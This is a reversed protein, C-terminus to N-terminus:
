SNYSQHFYKKVKDKLNNLSLGSRSENNEPEKTKPKFYLLTPNDKKISGCVEEIFKDDNYEGKLTEKLFGSLQSKDFGCTILHFGNLTPIVAIVNDYHEDDVKNASKCRNVADSVDRLADESKTDVDVIWTRKVGRKPTIGCCHELIRFCQNCRDEDILTSSERILSLLLGKASRVNLTIYARANNQECLQKIAPIRHEYDEISKIYYPRITRYGNNASPVDNGDKKRQIIQLFYFDDKDEFKLLGKILDFNDVVM